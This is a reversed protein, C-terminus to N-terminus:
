HNIVQDVHQGANVPIRLRAGPPPQVAHFLPDSMAIASVNVDPISTKLNNNINDIFYNALLAYGTNTPHIGDLSFANGLFQNTVPRGNVTVGGAAVANFFSHVDILTAGAFQAQQSIVANMANVQAQVTAVEAASLFGADSIPPAQKMQLIAQAQQIGNPNVLDGPGIGLLVSLQATPVGSAASLEALVVPAPTLYPVLTVDPINAIILNAKTNQLLQGILSQYSATFTAIPTMSSPMGTTDAVLADNNGIWLFITTADLAEAWELQSRSINLALGPIGLVLADLQQQGAAPNANPRTSIVDQVKHGPVALDTAQFNPNERGSTTGPLQTIVPPPGPSVLTLENPAGPPAV